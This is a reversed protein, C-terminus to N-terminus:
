QLDLCPTAYQQKFSITGEIRIVDPDCGNYDVCFLVPIMLTDGENNKTVNRKRWAETCKIFLRGEKGNVDFKYRIDKNKLDKTWNGHKEKEIDVDSADYIVSYSERIVHEVKTFKKADIVGRIIEMIHPGNKEVEKTFEEFDAIVTTITPNPPINRPMINKKPRPIVTGKSIRRELGAAYSEISQRHHPAWTSQISNPHNLRNFQPKPYGKNEKIEDTPMQVFSTRRVSADVNANMRKPAAVSYQGRRGKSIGSGVAMPIRIENKMAQNHQHVVDATFANTTTLTSSHIGDPASHRRRQIGSRGTQNMNLNKVMGAAVFGLAPIEPSILHNRVHGMHIGQYPITNPVPKGYMTKVLWGAYKSSLVKKNPKPNGIIRKRTPKPTYRSRDKIGQFISPKQRANNSFQFINSGGADVFESDTDNPPRIEENLISAINKNENKANDTGFSM